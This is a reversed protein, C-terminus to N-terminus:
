YQAYMAFLLRRVASFPQKLFRAKPHYRTYIEERSNRTLGHCLQTHSLTHVRDARPYCGLYPDLCRAQSRATLCKHRKPEKKGRVCRSCMLSLNHYQVKKTESLRYLNFYAAIIIFNKSKEFRTSRTEGNPCDRQDIVKSIKWFHPHRLGQLKSPIPPSTASISHSFNKLM